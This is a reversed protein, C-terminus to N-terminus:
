DGIIKLIEQAVIKNVIKSAHGDNKNITRESVPMDKVLLSVDITKVHNSNFYNVIDKVYITNSKELDNLFPFVVVILQMSNAKAYDIFLKLNDTHKELVIKNNYAQMLLNEYPFYVDQPISWYLYNLFYSGSGILIFIKYQHPLNVNTALRYIVNARSVLQDIIFDNHNGQQLHIMEDLILVRNIEFLMEHYATFEIDNGNYQLIVKEPKIRSLYIFQQMLDYEGRSDLGNKGINIVNYMGKKKLLEDGVINSFRDNISKLGHGATFSDGVFLIVHKNFKPENDRFGWSNIPKWYKAFWLKSSLACNNNHSRPIFMFLAELLIFIIFLSFLVTGINQFIISINKKDILIIKFLQFSKIFILALLFLRLYIAIGTPYFIPM